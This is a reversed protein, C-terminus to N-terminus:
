ASSGSEIGPPPTQRALLVDPQFSSPAASVGICECCRPAPLSAIACDHPRLRAFGHLFWSSALHFVLQFGAPLWLSVMRFGCPFKILFGRPFWASDLHCSHPFWFSAMHFGHPFWISVALFGYPPVWISVTHSGFQFWASAAHFDAPFWCSVVHFGRPLRMSVMHFGFFFGRPLLTSVHLLWEAQSLFGLLSASLFLGVFLFVLM